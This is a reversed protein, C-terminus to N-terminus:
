TTSAASAPWGSRRTLRKSTACAPSTPIGTSRTTTSPTSRTSRACWAEPTVILPNIEVLMADTEVFARYAGEIIAAVQKSRPPSAPRSASGAVHFPQFGMLPDVHLRALKEPSEEAV